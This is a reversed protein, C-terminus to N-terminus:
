CPQVKQNKFTQMNIDLNSTDTSFQLLIRTLNYKKYDWAIL